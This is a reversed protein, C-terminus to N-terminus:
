LAQQNKVMHEYKYKLNWMDENEPVKEIYWIQKQHTCTVIPHGHFPFKSTSEKMAM